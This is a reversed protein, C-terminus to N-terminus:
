KYRKNQTSDPIVPLSAIEKLIFQIMEFEHSNEPILKGEPCTHIEYEGDHDKDGYVLTHQTKNKSKLLVCFSSDERSSSPSVNYGKISYTAGEISTTGSIVEVYTSPMLDHCYELDVTKRLEYHVTTLLSSIVIAILSICFM